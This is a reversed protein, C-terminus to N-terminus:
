KGTQLNTINQQMQMIQSQISTYNNQYVYAAMGVIIGGLIVVVSASMMIGTSKAEGKGIRGNQTAVHTALDGTTKKIEGIAEKLYSMDKTLGALLIAPQMADTVSINTEDSM